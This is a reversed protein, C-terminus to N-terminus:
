CGFVEGHRFLGMHMGLEVSRRRIEKVKNEVKNLGERLAVNELLLKEKEADLAM